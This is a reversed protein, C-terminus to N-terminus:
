RLTELVTAIYSDKLKFGDSTEALVGAKMRRKWWIELMAESCTIGTHDDEMLFSRKILSPFQYENGDWPTDEWLPGKFSELSPSPHVQQAAWYVVDVLELWAANSGWVGFGGETIALNYAARRVIQEYDAIGTATISEKLQPSLAGRRARTIDQRTKDNLAEQGATEPDYDPSPALKHLFEGFSEAVLIFQEPEDNDLYLVSHLPFTTLDYNIVFSEHM